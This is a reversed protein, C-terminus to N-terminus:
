SYMAIKQAINFIIENPLLSESKGVYEELLGYLISNDKCLEQGKEPHGFFRDPDYKKYGCKINLWKKLSDKSESRVASFNECYSLKNSPNIHIALYIINFVLDRYRCYRIFTLHYMQKIIKEKDSSKKIQEILSNCNTFYEETQKVIDELMTKYDGYEPNDNKLNLKNKFYNKKIAKEATHGWAEVNNHSYYSRLDSILYNYENMEKYKSFPINEKEAYDIYSKILWGCDVLMRYLNAIFLWFCFDDNDSPLYLPNYNCFLFLKPDLDKEVQDNLKKVEDKLFSTLEESKSSM